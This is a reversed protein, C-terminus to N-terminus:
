NEQFADSTDHKDMTQIKILLVLCTTQKLVKVICYIYLMVCVFLSTKGGRSINKKQIQIHYPPPTDLHHRVRTEGEELYGYNVSDYSPPVVPEDRCQQDSDVKVSCTEVSDTIFFIIILIRFVIWPSHLKYPLSNKCINPLCHKSLYWGIIVFIIGTIWYEFSQQSNILLKINM